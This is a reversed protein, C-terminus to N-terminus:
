ASSGVPLAFLTLLFFHSMQNRIKSLSRLRNISGYLETLKLIEEAKLEKGQAYVQQKGSVPQVILSLTAECEGWEARRGEIKNTRLEDAHPYMKVCVKEFRSSNRQNLTMSKWVNFAPSFQFPFPQSKHKTPSCVTLCSSRSHSPVVNFPIKQLFM